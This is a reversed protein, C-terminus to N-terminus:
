RDEGLKAMRPRAGPLPRFLGRGRGASGDAARARRDCGARRRADHPRRRRARGPHVHRRGAHRHRPAHGLPSAFRPRPGLWRTRRRPGPGPSGPKVLLPTLLHSTLSQYICTEFERRRKPHPSPLDSIPIYMDRIRTEQQARALRPGCSPPTLLHLYPIPLSYIERRTRRRPGPGSSGPDMRLPPPLHFYSIPTSYM